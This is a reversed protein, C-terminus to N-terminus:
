ALDALFADLNLYLVEYANSTFLHYIPGDPVRPDAGIWQQEDEYGRANTLSALPWLAIMQGAEADWFEHDFAGLSYQSIFSVTYGLAMCRKGEHAKWEGSAYFARLRGALEQGHQAEMQELLDDPWLEAYGAAVLIQARRALEVGPPTGRDAWPDVVEVAGDLDVTVDDEGAILTCTSGTAPHRYTRKM